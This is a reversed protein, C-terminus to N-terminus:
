VIYLFGVIEPVAIDEPKGEQVILETNESDKSMDADVGDVPM